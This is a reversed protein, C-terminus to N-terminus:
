EYKGELVDQAMTVLSMAYNPEPQGDEGDVVDSYNEVFEMMEQLVSELADVRKKSREVGKKYADAILHHLEFAGIEKDM